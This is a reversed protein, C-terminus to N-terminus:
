KNINQHYCQDILGVLTILLISCLNSIRYNARIPNIELPLNMEPLLTIDTLILNINQHYCQDFLGVLNSIRYNARIPNIQLPFNMETVLTVDTLILNIYTAQESSLVSMFGRKTTWISMFRLLLTRKTFWIAVIVRTRLQDTLLVAVVNWVWLQNASRVSVFLLLMRKVVQLIPTVLILVIIHCLKFWKHPAFTWKTLLHQRTGKSWLRICTATCGALAEFIWAKHTRDRKQNCAESKRKCSINVSLESKQTLYNKQTCFIM